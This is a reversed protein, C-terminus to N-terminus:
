LGINMGAKKLSTRFMRDLNDQGDKIDYPTNNIVKDVNVSVLEKNFIVNKNNTTGATNLNATIRPLFDYVLHDFAKTQEISLVREGSKAAIMKDEGISKAIIDLLNKGGPVVGGKAYNTTYFAHSSGQVYVYKGNAKTTELARGVSLAEEASNYNYGTYYYGGAVKTVRVRWKPPKSTGGGGSSGGGGSGGTSGGGSSGGGGSGGTSTSISQIAGAIMRSYGDLAENVKNSIIEGASTGMLSAIGSYYEKGGYKTLLAIIDDTKKNRILDNAKEYLAQDTMKKSLAKLEPDYLPSDADFLDEFHAEIEEIAKQEDDIEKEIKDIKIEDSLDKIQESLEKQKAKGLTSNDETWLNYQEQLKALNAEKDEETNGKIKDIEAQLQEIRDTHVKIQADREKELYKVREDYLEQYKAKLAKVIEDQLDEITSVINNYDSANRDNGYKDKGGSGTYGKGGSGGSGSGSSSKGKTLSTIGANKYASLNNIANVNKGLQSTLKSIFDTTAAKLEQLKASVSQSSVSFPASKSSVSTKPGGMTGPRGDYSTREGSARMQSTVVQLARGIPNISNKIFLGMNRSAIGFNTNMATVGYSAGQEIGSEMDQGVSQYVTATNQELESDQSLIKDKADKSVTLVNDQMTVYNEQELEDLTKMNNALAARDEARSSNLLAESEAIINLKQNEIDLQANILENDAELEAIKQDISSNFEEEKMALVANIANRQNEVSGDSFLNSQALLEPYTAALDMLELKSIATGKALKEQVKYLDEFSSTINNIDNALSNISLDSFAEELADGADEASSEIGELQTNVSDLESSSEVAANIKNRFEDFEPVLGEPLNVADIEEKLSVLLDVYQGSVDEMQKDIESTDLGLELKEEYQKKLEDYKYKLADLMELDNYMLSSVNGYKETPGSYTNDKDKTKEVFDLAAQKQKEEQQAKLLALKKNMLPIEKNLADLEKQQSDTISGSNKLDSLEKQREITQEVKSNYEDLENAADQYDEMSKEFVRNHRDQWYTWLKYVGYAATVALTLIALKNSLLGTIALKAKEVVLSAAEAATLKGTAVQQAITAITLKQTEAVAKATIVNGAEDVLIGDSRVKLGLKYQENIKMLEASYKEYSINGDAYAKNLSIMQTISSAKIASAGEEAQRERIKLEIYKSLGEANSRQASTGYKMLNIYEKYAGTTSIVKQLLKYGATIEGILTISNLVLPNADSIADAISQIGNMLLSLHDLLGSNAIAYGAEVMSTKLQAWQASFSELLAANQKDMYNNVSASNVMDYYKKAGNTAANWSELLAVAVDRQRTAGVSELINQAMVDNGVSKYHEYAKSVTEMIESFEKFKGNADVLQYSTDGLDKSIQNFLKTTKGRTLYSTFTKLSTGAEEGTKALKDSLISMLVIADDVDGNLNKLQGGFRSMGEGYEDATGMATKDAMYAWKNLVEEANAITQVTSSTTLDFQLMTANLLKVADEANEIEGVNMFKSTLTTIKNLLTINNSYIDNIRVWAAQIEQADTVQTATAKASEFAAKILADSTEKSSDGMIRKINIANKEVEVVKGSINSFENLVTRAGTVTLAAQAFNRKYYNMYSNVKEAGAPNLAKSVAKTSASLEKNLSDYAKKQEAIQKKLEATEAQKSAKYDVLQKALQNKHENTKRIEAQKHSQERNKIESNFSATLRKEEEKIQAATKKSQVVITNNGSKYNNTLTTIAEEVNKFSKGLTKSSSNISEIIKKIENLGSEEDTVTFGAQVNLKNMEEAM